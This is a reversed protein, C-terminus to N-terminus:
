SLLVGGHVGRSGCKRGERSRASTIEQFQGMNHWKHPCLGRVSSSRILNIGAMQLCGDLSVTVWIWLHIEMCARKHTFIYYIEYIPKAIPSRSENKQTEPHGSLSNTQLCPFACKLEQLTRSQLSTLTLVPM